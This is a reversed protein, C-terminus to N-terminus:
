RDGAALSEAVLKSDFVDRLKRTEELMGLVGCLFLDPCRCYALRDDQWRSRIQDSLPMVDPKVLGFNLTSRM